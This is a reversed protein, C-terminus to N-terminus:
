HDKQGAGAGQHDTIIEGGEVLRHFLIQLHEFIEAQFRAPVFVIKGVLLFRLALEFLRLRRPLSASKPRSAFEARTVEAAVATGAISRVRSSVAPEQSYNEIRM